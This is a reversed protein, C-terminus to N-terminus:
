NSRTGQKLLLLEGAKVFSSLNLSTKNLLFKISDCIIKKLSMNRNVSNTVHPESM